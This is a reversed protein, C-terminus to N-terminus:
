SVMVHGPELGGKDTLTIRVDVNLCTLLRFLRDTAVLDIRGRFVKSLTAQDTGWLAAAAKRTLGRSKLLEKLRLLLEARYLLKDSEPLGLDNFVNGSSVEIQGNM